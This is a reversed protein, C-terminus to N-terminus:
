GIESPYLPPYRAGDAALFAEIELDHALDAM